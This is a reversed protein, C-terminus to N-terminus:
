ASITLDLDADKVPPGRGSGARDENWELGPLTERNRGDVVWTGARIQELEAQNIDADYEQWDMYKMKSFWSQPMFSMLELREVWPMGNTYEAETSVQYVDSHLQEFKTKLEWMRLREEDSWNDFALTGSGDEGKGKGFSGATGSKAKAPVLDNTHLPRGGGRGWNKRFTRHKGLNRRSKPRRSKPRRSKPRRSKSRRSKPRRSKGM